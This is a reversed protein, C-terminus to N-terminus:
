DSSAQDGGDGIPREAAGDEAEPAQLRSTDIAFPREPASGIRLSQSVQVLSVCLAVSALGGIAFCLTASARARERGVRISRAVRTAREAGWPVTRERAGQVAAELSRSM